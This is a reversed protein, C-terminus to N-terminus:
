GQPLQGRDMLFSAMFNSMIVENLTKRGNLLPKYKRNIYLRYNIDYDRNVSSIFVSHTFWIKNTSYHLRKDFVGDFM